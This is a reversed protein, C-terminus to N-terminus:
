LDLAALEFELPREFVDMHVHLAAEGLQDTRRRPPQMGRARAIILDRGIEPQPDPLRDIGEVLGEASVLLRQRFLCQLM